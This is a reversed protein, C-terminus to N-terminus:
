SMPLFPFERNKEERAAAGNLADAKTRRRKLIDSLLPSGALVIRNKGTFIPL